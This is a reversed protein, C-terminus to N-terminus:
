RFNEILMVDSGQGVERTFLITKGDASVTLGPRLPGELTGIVRDKGTSPDWLLLPVSSTSGGCPVHYVGAATVSFGFRRVCDIVTREPAGNLSLALLAQSSGFSREFYLTKGDPSLESRGGGTRTVQEASGGTAPARWITKGGDPGHSFYVYHGDHSWAPHNESAPDSTLRRPSGGGADITWVHWRGDEDM